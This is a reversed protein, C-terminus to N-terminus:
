QPFCLHLSSELAGYLRWEVALVAAGAAALLLWSVATAAAAALRRISLPSRPPRPLSLNTM